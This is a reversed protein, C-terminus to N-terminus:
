LTDKQAINSPVPDMVSRIIWVYIYQGNEFPSHGLLLREDLNSLFNGKTDDGQTHKPRGLFSVM